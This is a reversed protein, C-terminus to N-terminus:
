DVPLSATHLAVGAAADRAQVLAVAPRARWWLWATQATGGLVMAAVGVYLGATQGSAVGAILVGVLTVLYIVVSETIGRTRRSHLIAGQFWSQGVTLAPLPLSLWLGIGALRALEPSLASV